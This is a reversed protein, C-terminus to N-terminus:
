RGAAVRTARVPAILESDADGADSLAALMLEPFNTVIADVGYRVARHADEPTNITYIALPLGHEKADRVREHSLQGKSMVVARAGVPIARESPLARDNPHMIVAYPINPNITGAHALLAHDFSSLLTQNAMDAVDITRLVAALFKEGEIPDGEYSKLEINLYARGRLYELVEILLPVREGAYRPSMWSGADLAAVQDYTHADVRGTGSTTRGLVADHIVVLRGDATRQVDIEVIKAGAEVGLRVAAMTNEPATGSSGRHAVITPRGGFPYEVLSTLM